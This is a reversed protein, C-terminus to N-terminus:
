VHWSFLLLNSVTNSEDIYNLQRLVDVRQNYEPLLTLSQDSLLFRLHEYKEQLKRNSRLQAFNEEFSPEHVCQYNNFSSELM